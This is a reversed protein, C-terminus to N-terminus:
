KRHQAHSKASSHPFLWKFAIVLCGLVNATTTSLMAIQVADSVHLWGIAAFLVFAMVAAIIAVALRFIHALYKKRLGHEEMNQRLIQERRQSEFSAEAKTLVEEQEGAGPEMGGGSRSIRELVGGAEDIAACM